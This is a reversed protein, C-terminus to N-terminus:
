RGADHAADYMGALEAAILALEILKALQESPLQDYAALINARLQEPSDAAEVMAKIREMWGALVTDGAGALQGALLDAATPLLSCPTTM